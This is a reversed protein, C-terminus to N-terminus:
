NGTMELNILKAQQQPQGMLMMIQENIQMLNQGETLSASLTFANLGKAFGGIAHAIEATVPAQQLQQEVMVQMQEVSMGQKSLEGELLAELEGENNLAINLYRPEMEYLAEMVKLQQEFLQQETLPQARAQQQAAHSVAMLQHTNSLGMDVHLSVIDNASVDVVLDSDGSKEDYDLSSHIDYSASALMVNTEAPFLAIFDNDFQFHNIDVSSQPPINQTEYGTVVISDINAVREGEPGQVLLDSVTISNSIVSASVDAYTITAGTQQNVLALQKDIEARVEKSAAHNVYGVGGVGAAIVVAVAIALKNM